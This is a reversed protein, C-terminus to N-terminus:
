YEKVFFSTIEEEGSDWADYYDGDIVCIVHSGTALIYTGEPHKECFDRVTINNTMEQFFGNDTLYKGWVSNSSPMDCSKLGYLCLEIYVRYWDKGLGKSLARIVCDGVKKGCANPNYRRYM